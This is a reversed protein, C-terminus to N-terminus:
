ANRIVGLIMEYEMKTVHGELQIFHKGAARGREDHHHATIKMKQIATVLVDCSQLAKITQRMAARLQENEDMIKGEPPLSVSDVMIM